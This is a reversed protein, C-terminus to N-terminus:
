RYKETPNEIHALSDLGLQSRVGIRGRDRQPGFCQPHLMGLMDLQGFFSGCTANTIRAIIAAVM